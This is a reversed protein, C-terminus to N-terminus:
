VSGQGTADVSALRVANEPSVVMLLPMMFDASCRMIPKSESEPAPRTARQIYPRLRLLKLARLFRAASGTPRVTVDEPRIPVAQAAPIVRGGYEFECESAMYKGDREVADNPLSLFCLTTQPENFHWVHNKHKTRPVNDSTNIRTTAFVANLGFHRMLLQIRM